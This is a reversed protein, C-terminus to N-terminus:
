IIERIRPLLNKGELRFFSILYSFSIFILYSFSMVILISFSIFFYSFIFYSFSLFRALLGADDLNSGLM